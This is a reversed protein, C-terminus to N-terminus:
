WYWRVAGLLYFVVGGSTHSWRNLFGPETHRWCTYPSLRVGKKFVCISVIAIVLLAKRWTSRLAFETAVFMTVLLAISSRIRSCEKVVELSVIPLRLIFGEELVLVNLIRPLECGVDSSGV